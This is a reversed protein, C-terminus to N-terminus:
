FLISMYQTSSGLGVAGWPSPVGIVNNFSGKAYQGTPYYAKWTRENEVNNPFWCRDTTLWLDTVEGYSSSSYGDAHLTEQVVLIGVVSYGQVSTTVDSYFAAKAPTGFTTIFCITMVLACIGLFSNVKKM